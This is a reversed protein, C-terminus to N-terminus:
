SQPICFVHRHIKLSNIKVLMKDFKRKMDDASKRSIINHRLQWELDFAFAPAVGTIPKKTNEDVLQIPTTALITIYDYNEYFSISNETINEDYYPKLVLNFGQFSTIVERAVKPGNNLTNLFTQSLEPGYILYDMRSIQWLLDYSPWKNCFNLDQEKSIIFIEVTNYKPNKTDDFNFFTHDNKKTYIKEGKEKVGVKCLPVPFSSNSTIDIINSFSHKYMIESSTDKIHVKPAKKKNKSSSHYTLEKNTSHIEPGNKGLQWYQIQFHNGLLSFKFDITDKNLIPIIRLIDSKDSILAFKM